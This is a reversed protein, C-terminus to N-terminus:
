EPEVELVYGSLLADVYKLLLDESKARLYVLGSVSASHVRTGIVAGPRVKMTVREVGALRSLEEESSVEVVRGPRAPLRCVAVTDSNGPDVLVPPTPARGLEAEMFGRWLDVGHKLQVAEIIGGGAPRCSIEGVVFGSTTRYLELHTVGNRLGLTDVIERHLERARAVDPNDDALVVSGNFEGVTDLVTRLYRSVGAFVVEGNRVLGDCHYEAEMEIRREVLLPCRARRLGDSEPSAALREWDAASKVSFVNMSGTGLAPKVVVPWGIEGAAQAVSRWDGVAHHRAVPLGAAALVAKMVAKNSFRNATDFGIGPIGFVSRLYGGPLLSRESPAIVHDIPQRALLGLVTDRMVTLDGVDDVFHLRTGAAYMSAYARETIVDLETDPAVSRLRDVAESKGTNVMVARSPAVGDNNETKM